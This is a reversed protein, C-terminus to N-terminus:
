NEEVYLDGQIRKYASKICGEWERNKFDKDEQFYQQLFGVTSHIHFGAEAFRCGVYFWSANRNESIGTMLMNMVDNPIKTLDPIGPLIPMDRERRQIPKKDEHAFLWKFFEEQSIRGRMEVLAQILKKGNNRRNGPFRISRSPNKIQQDTKPLVNLLWQNYFRWMDINPLPDDLVVAYHLSKNGSFICVSYPLKSDEIYKKQEELTGSDIEVMFSRFSTVNEDKRWGTIPNVAILNIESESITKPGYDENPSILTVPGSLEEQKISHYGYKNPSVCIQEDRDFLLSLFASTTQTMM